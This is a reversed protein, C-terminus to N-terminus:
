KLRRRIEEHVEEWDLLEAMGSKFDAYRKNLERVHWEPVPVSEGNIKDWMNEVLLIKKVIDLKNFERLITTTTM